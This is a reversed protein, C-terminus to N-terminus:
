KRMKSLGQVFPVQSYWSQPSVADTGCGVSMIRVCYVLHRKHLMEKPDALLARFMYLSKIRLLSFSFHMMNTETNSHHVTLLINVCVPMKRWWDSPGSIRSLTKSEPGTACLASFKATQYLIQASVKHRTSLRNIQRSEGASLNIPERRLLKCGQWSLRRM